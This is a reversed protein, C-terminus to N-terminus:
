DKFYINLINILGEKSVPKTILDNCGSDFARERDDPYAFATQAIIILDKNFQRIQRTAELGDMVPMKIDMLVLDFDPNYKCAKVAELGNDVIIIERSFDKTVISILVKSIEDDEAILIKLNGIKNEIPVDNRSTEETIKENHVTNYPITFFFTSGRKEDSWSPLMNDTNVDVWIKGGLIKVYAKSISLGLGAGEYNRSLSESGQRFREFIIEVQEQPIGVGTDKVYFELFNGKKKYGFEIYGAATFKIANNVLNTLIALIKDTDTLIKAENNPLSNKFFIQLDKEKALPKFFNYIFEVQENVNTESVVTEIHGSEIRSINIINNIIDLLRDGSKEIISIYEQQKEGTLKPSKLLNTFGLIGNMPTRIEHSMNALFATKLRDNEEAKNKAAILETEICKRETIDTAVGILGLIENGKDKVVTTSLYVPFESGNKRKNILEGQWEARITSTLIENVLKQENKPSGVLSIPKGILEKLKYGYTDLFAQNVFLIKDELDTISVCENISKLSQSLMAIEDEAMKRQTIDEVVGDYFITKGESNRVVQASERVYFISGDRRKWASEFDIIEGDREIKNIFGMRKCIPDFGNAELNREALQKFTEYGLMKVLLRNAMLITGDPTTRYLGIKANQYLNRFQRESEQLAKEAIKRETIERGIGLVGIVEKKDNYIPAKITELCARHGDDAFTIWEENISPKGASIAINDFARFSDALEKDVFDYDTKGVIEVEKVGLFREFMPNCLLYVGDTDKVWILDPITKVLTSLRNESIILKKEAKKHETIDRINFQIVKKKNVLYVNSVFEVSINRGDLTELPLNDYRVYEKRKLELFKEKNAAIDKFFGIEWLEKDIFNEKSYGLLNVLFPNVDIIRGSEADVLLIGDGASEFLRRYRTELITLAEESKKRKTIDQAVTAIIVKGESDFVNASNWLVTKIENYKTLIEVEIIETKKDTLMNKIFQLSSDTKGEPFLFDIKKNEAEEWGYGTLEKFAHNVRNIVLSSDWILIPIQASNFLIDLYENTLREKEAFSKEALRRDTIDEFALLIIKDGGFERVIQRANLLMTRKGIVPFIHEVEYSNFTTKEPLITELLARLKPIDWQHDGLEYILKGLTEDPKVRFYYYFPCSAKVVRLEANLLLMPERVTNIINEALQYLEDDIIKDEELEKRAAEQIIEIGKRNSIDRINCQILKTRNVVYVNSIFEVSITHGDFTELPLNEYRVNEKRQLENFKEKSAAIDKFFGIEWLEKDIFKEKPYGLLEILFPNVDIIKGTEADLILIGDLSSEFLSRYREESAVLDDRPTSVTKVVLHEEKLNKKAPLKM